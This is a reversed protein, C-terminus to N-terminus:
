TSSLVRLALLKSSARGYMMRKITKLRNVHGETVGNSFPHTCAESIAKIDKEM